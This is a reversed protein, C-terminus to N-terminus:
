FIPIEPIYERFEYRENFLGLSLATLEGLKDNTLKGLAYGRTGFYFIRLDREEQIAWNFFYIPDSNLYIGKKWKRVGRIRYEKLFYMSSKNYRKRGHSEILIATKKINIRKGIREEFYDLIFDRFADKAGHAYAQFLAAFDRLDIKFFCYLPNFIPRLIKNDKLIYVSYTTGIKKYKEDFVVLPPTNEYEVEGNELINELEKQLISSM